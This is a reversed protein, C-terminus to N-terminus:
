SGALPSHSSVTSGYWPSGQAFIGLPLAMSAEAATDAALVAMVLPGQAVILAVARPFIKRRM